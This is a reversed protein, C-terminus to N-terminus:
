DSSQPIIVWRGGPIWADPGLSNYRRLDAASVGYEWALQDVQTDESLYLPSFRPLFAADRQGPLVILVAGVWLRQGRVFVNVASLVEVSTDFREAIVALSEGAIVKHLIFQSTEGFPTGLDPGPTPPAPTFSATPSPSATATRTPTSISNVRAPPSTRSPAPSPSASPTPSPLSLVAMPSALSPRTIAAVAPPPNNPRLAVAVAVLLLVTVLLFTWFWPSTRRPPSAARRRAAEPLTEPAKALFVPCQGHTETFCVQDQYDLALPAPPKLRYCSNGQSPYAFRTHEDIQSGLHPCTHRLRALAEEPLNTAAAM